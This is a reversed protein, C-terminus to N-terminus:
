GSHQEVMSKFIGAFDQAADDSGFMKGILDETDKGTEKARQILAAESEELLPDFISQFSDTGKAATEYAKIIAQSLLLSDFMASNVGEGNPLMLHAADGVITVGPKHQWSLGHPLTYLARIDLNADPNEASDEDCATAVLKKVPTGFTGLLKNDGLLVGQASAAPKDALGSITPFDQDPITLWLYIRSSDLPGRQSVLAHKNGLSTFSGSGILNALHPYRKTIHRITLTIIQMGTYYPKTDTLLRRVRSWAGDAGVVLDFTHKGHSGFDLETESTEPATSKLTEASLLKHGWKVSNSPLNSLLLKSLNNRSIEPRGGEGKDVFLIKGTRDAVIFDESCEGTLPLFADYLGCEKIVTLGSGDHLDLMGSPKALEEEDPKQRLEFVTFPIGRKHLLLGLTLGAPGGGVIAIRPQQTPM